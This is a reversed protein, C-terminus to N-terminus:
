QIIYNGIPDDFHTQDLYSGNMLIYVQDFDIEHENSLKECIEGITVDKKCIFTYDEQFDYTLKVKIEEVM